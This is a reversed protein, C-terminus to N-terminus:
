TSTMFLNFLWWSMTAFVASRTFILLICFSLIICSHNFSFHNYSFGDFTGFLHSQNVLVVFLHNGGASTANFPQFGTVDNNQHSAASDIHYLDTFSKHGVYLVITCVCACSSNLSKTGSFLRFDADGSVAASIISSVLFFLQAVISGSDHFLKAHVGYTETDGYGFLDFIIAGSFRFLLAIM